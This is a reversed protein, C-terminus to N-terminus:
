LDANRIFRNGESHRGFYVYRSTGFTGRHDTEKAAQPLPTYDLDEPSADSQTIIPKKKTLFPAIKSAQQREQATIPRSDLFRLKQLRLIILYRYNQYDDEDEEDGTMGDPCAKNNLLSLFSLNPFSESITQLLMDIDETCDRVRIWQTIFLINPTPTM